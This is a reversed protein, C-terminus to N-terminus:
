LENQGIRFEFWDAFMGVRPLAEPYSNSSFTSGKNNFTYGSELVIRGKGVTTNAEPLHPRDPNIRGEGELEERDKDEEESGFLSELLTRPQRKTTTREDHRAREDEKTFNPRLDPQAFPSDAPSELAQVGSRLPDAWVATSFLPDGILAV